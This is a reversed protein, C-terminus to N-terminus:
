GAGRRAHQLQGREAQTATWTACSWARRNRNCSPRQRRCGPAQHASSPLARCRRRACAARTGSQSRRYAASRFTCRHAPQLRPTLTAVLPTQGVLLEMPLLVLDADSRDCAHLAPFSPDEAKRPGNAERPTIASPLAGEHGPLSIGETNQRLLTRRRSARSLAGVQQYVQGDAGAADVTVLKADEHEVLTALHEYRRMPPEYEGIAYEVRGVIEGGTGWPARATRRSGAPHVPVRRQRDHEASSLAQIPASKGHGALAGRVDPELPEAPPRSHAEGAPCLRGEWGVGAEHPVGGRIDHLLM